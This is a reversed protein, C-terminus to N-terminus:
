NKNIYFQRYLEAFKTLQKDAQKFFFKYSRCFHNQGQDAPDRIRDKICGGYCLDLWQCSQCEAGFAAKRRSFAIHSESLFAKGLSIEHVNGVYTDKSVLYDCSFLDGNHEAVLSNGCIKQFICHDPTMGVYKKILADFFRVSTKQKLNKFDFDRVWLKFLRHLFIGYDRADASYPAAAGPNQPDSEVVPAFQMFTFGNKVFFKYIKEPYKVSYHNVAALVNLPVGKNLLMRAKEFVPLFTGKGQKDKRYFDHIPEPGDLSIGVLFNENKFFLAWEENLLTGNTQIANSYPRGEAYYRQMATAKVFFELGMLTPEGGHWIFTPADSCAFMDKVLKEVTADSMRHKSSPGEYLRHKELYFCYDCQLNCFSGVPKILISRKRVARNIIM